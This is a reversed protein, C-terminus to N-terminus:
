SVQLPEDYHIFQQQQMMLQPNVMAGGGDEASMGDGAHGSAQEHFVAELQERDDCVDCILDDPDLM